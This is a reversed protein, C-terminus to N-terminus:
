LRNASFTEVCRAVEVNFLHDIPLILTSTELTYHYVEADVCSSLKRCSIENM